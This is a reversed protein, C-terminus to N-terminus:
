IQMLEQQINQVAILHFRDPRDSMPGPDPDRRHEAIDTIVLVLTAINLSRLHEVMAKREEDWALLICICSSLESARNVVVPILYKFKKDRCADVGALVELLKDTGALGRGATFCYAETGVFMLDLLSEQTQIQCALSAAISVAEELIRYNGGTQFTDLILAHRVFFEDQFEKVVPKGIKAWSKWHIKRLPDGPRYDRLSVFEESDGVSSALAVGGSQYRRNGPLEVPPLDYRRPLIVVSEPLAVTQLASILGLPGPRAIILGSLRLIGRRSPVIKVTLRSDSDPQLSPLRVADATAQRKASLLWQWRYYGLTRDIPNCKHEDPESAERYEQYSPWTFKLDEFLVLGHQIKGTQNHIELRYELPEGATGFRPMMRKISLRCRFFLSGALEILLISLLLTFAQYAMTQKTDLGVIASAVLGILLAKGAPTFRKVRWLKFGYSFRFLHYFIYNM